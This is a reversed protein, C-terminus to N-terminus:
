GKCNNHDDNRCAARRVGQRIALAINALDVHISCKAIELFFGVSWMRSLTAIDTQFGRVIQHLDVAISLWGLGDGTM